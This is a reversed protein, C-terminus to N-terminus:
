NKSPQKKHTSCQHMMDEMGWSYEEISIKLQNDTHLTSNVHEEEDKLNQMEKDAREEQNDTEEYPEKGLSGESNEWCMM